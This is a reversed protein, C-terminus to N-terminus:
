QQNLLLSPLNPRQKKLQIPWIKSKLVRPPPLKRSQLRLNKKLLLSRANRKPLINNLSTQFLLTLISQTKNRRQFPLLLMKLRTRNLILHLKRMLKTRNCKRRTKKSRSRWSKNRNSKKNKNSSCITFQLMMRNSLNILRPLRKSNSQRM